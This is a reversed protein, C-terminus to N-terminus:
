EPYGNYRQRTRAANFCVGYANQGSFTIVTMKGGTLQERPLSVGLILNRWPTIKAISKTTTSMLRKTSGNSWRTYQHKDRGDLLYTLVLAEPFKGDGKPKLSAQKNGSYVSESIDAAITFGAARDAASIKSIDLKLIVLYKSNNRDCADKLVHSTASVSSLQTGSGSGGGTGNRWADGFAFDCLEEESSSSRGMFTQFQTEYYSRFIALAYGNCITSGGVSGGSNSGITIKKTFKGGPVALEQAYRTRKTSDLAQELSVSSRVGVSQASIITKNAGTISLNLTSTNTSKSFFVLNIVKTTEGPAVIVENKANLTIGVNREQSMAATTVTLATLISAVTVFINKIM